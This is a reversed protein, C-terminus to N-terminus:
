GNTAVTGAGVPVALSSFSGHHSACEGPQSGVFSDPEHEDAPYVGNETITKERQEFQRDCRGDSVEAAQEDRVRDRGDDRENQMPAESEPDASGSVDDDVKEAKRDDIQDCECEVRDRQGNEDFERVDDREDRLRRYRDDRRGETVETV